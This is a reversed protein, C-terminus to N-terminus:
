HTSRYYRAPAGRYGAKDPHHRAPTLAPLLGERQMKKFARVFATSGLWILMPFGFGALFRLSRPPDDLGLMLCAKDYFFFGYFHLIFLFLTAQSVLKVGRAVLRPMMIRERWILILGFLSFWLIREDGRDWGAAIFILFELGLLLGTMILRNRLSRGGKILVAWFVWGFMFNWAVLHPLKDQLYATDWLALSALAIAASVALMLGTIKVPSRLIKPTLDLAWFLPILVLMMQAFCQVYWIPLLEVRDTTIWNSFLALETWPVDGIVIERLAAIALCPLTIALTFRLFASLTHATSRTFGFLAMSIGSVLLLGNLGGHLGEALGAHNAVLLTIALARVLTLTELSSKPPM